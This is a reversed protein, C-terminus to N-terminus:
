TSSSDAMRLKRFVACLRPPSFIKAEFMVTPPVNAITYNEKDEYYPEVYRPMGKPTGSSYPVPQFLIDTYELEINDDLKLQSAFARLFPKSTLMERLSVRSEERLTFDGVFSEIVKINMCVEFKTSSRSVFHRSEYAPLSFFRSLKFSLQHSSARIRYGCSTASDAIQRRLEEKQRPIVNSPCLFAM